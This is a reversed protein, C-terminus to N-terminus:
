NYHSWEHMTSNWCIERQHVVRRLLTASYCWECYMCECPRHYCHCKLGPVNRLRLRIKIATNCLINVFYVHCLLKADIRCCCHSRHRTTSRNLYFYTKSHKTWSFQAAQAFNGVSCLILWDTLPRTLRHLIETEVLVGTEIVFFLSINNDITRNM